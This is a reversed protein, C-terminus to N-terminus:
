RPVNVPFDQRIRVIDFIENPEVAQYQVVNRINENTGLYVRAVNWYDIPNESYRDSIYIDVGYSEFQFALQTDNETLIVVNFLNTERIYEQIRPSINMNGDFTNIICYLTHNASLNRLVPIINDKLLSNNEVLQNYDFAIRM